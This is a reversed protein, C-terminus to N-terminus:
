SNKARDAEDVDFDDRGTEIFEISLRLLTQYETTTSESTLLQREEATLPQGALVKSGVQLLAGSWGAFEGYLAEAKENSENAAVIRVKYYAATVEKM